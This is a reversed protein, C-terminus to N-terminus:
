KRLYFSDTKSKRPGSKGDDASTPTHSIHAYQWGDNKFRDTVAKRIEGPIHNKPIIIEMEESGIKRRQQIRSYLYKISELIKIEQGLNLEDNNEKKEESILNITDGKEKRHGFLAVYGLKRFIDQLKEKETTSLSTDEELSISIKRDGGAQNTTEIGKQALMLIKLESDVNSIKEELNINEEEPMPSEREFM